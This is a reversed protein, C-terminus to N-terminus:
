ISSNPAECRVTGSGGMGAKRKETKSHIAPEMKNGCNGSHQTSLIRGLPRGNVFQNRKPAPPFQSLFSPLNAPPTSALVPKANTFVLSKKKSREPPRALIAGNSRNIRKRTRGKDLRFHTHVAIVRHDSVILRRTLVRVTKRTAQCRASWPVRSDTANQAHIMGVSSGAYTTLM